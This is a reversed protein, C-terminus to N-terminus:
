GESKSLLYNYFEYQARIVPLSQRQMTYGANKNMIRAKANDGWQIGFMSKIEKIAEQDYLPFSIEIRRDLNRTMWDASSMYIKEKGGNCFIFVRSHELFRDVISIVGINESQGKVGPILCCIGRVILRIRVGANSAEYLKQIMQNDVLSNMKADIYAERGRAANKIEQDILKLFEKKMYFPSVLLHNFRYQIRPFNNIFSFIKIVEKVIRADATFLATDGYMRATRGNYNGTSLHAYHVTRKNEKRFIVCCKAHIKYNPVGFILHAGAEQLKNTWYLNSEEDFRAQLEMVVTVEKGNKVANILANVINSHRAVRYLTIKIAYVAPDIAAERLFRIVYDFSQYPHQILVDKERIADFLVRTREFNRLPIPRLPAYRMSDPGVDPFNFFDKFNHYRGGPIMGERSLKNKQVIFELLDQPIDEDYIFRVPVGKDREKLSKSIRAMFDESVENDIDLEADRTMKITYAEFSDYNFFSFIEPLCIRIVDDLFMIYTNGDTEPLIYFRGLVESPVETLAYRPRMSGDQRTMRIALYISKDRLFPFDRLHNLIVPFLNSMVEAKYHQLVMRKQTQSLQQENVIYIRHEGLERIIQEEFIETFHEQQRMVIRQIEQLLHGTQRAEKMKMKKQYRLLRRNSAVRVRFFEDLNSSFIALFKIREGLPVNSDAAEQLVRENFSLWSLERNIVPFGNENKPM